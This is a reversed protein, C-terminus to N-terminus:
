VTRVPVDVASTLQRTAAASTTGLVLGSGDAPIKIAHVTKEDRRAQIVAAAAKLEANSYKAAEIEVPVAVKGIAATIQAPVAGKWWLAVHDDELVIGAFGKDAGDRVEAQIVEAAHVLPQQALMRQWTTPQPAAQVAPLPGVTTAVALVAAFLLTRRATM